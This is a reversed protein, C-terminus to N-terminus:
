QGETLTEMLKPTQKVATADMHYLLEKAFAAATAAAYKQWRDNKHSDAYDCVGRVVLCPFSNVLGAAEMEFCICEEDLLSLIEDRRVADKVLLNGSAIVGYHIKREKRSTTAYRSHIGAEKLEGLFDSSDPAGLSACCYM